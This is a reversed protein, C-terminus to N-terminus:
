NNTLREGMKVLVFCEENTIGHREAQESINSGTKVYEHYFEKISESIKGM